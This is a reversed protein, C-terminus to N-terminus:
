DPVQVTELDVVAGSEGLTELAATARRYFEQALAADDWEPHQPRENQM